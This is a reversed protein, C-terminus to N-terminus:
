GQMSFALGGCRGLGWIGFRSNWVRLGLGSTGFVLGGVGWAWVKFGVVRKRFGVGLMECAVDWIGCGVGRM